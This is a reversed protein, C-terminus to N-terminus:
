CLMEILGIVISTPVDFCRFPLFYRETLTHALSCREFCANNLWLRDEIKREAHSSCFMVSSFNSVERSSDSLKEIFASSNTLAKCVGFEIPAIGGASCGRREATPVRLCERMCYSSLSMGRLSFHWLMARLRFDAMGPEDLPWGNKTGGEGPLEAPPKPECSPASESM